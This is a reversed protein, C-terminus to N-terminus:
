RNSNTPIAMTNGRRALMIITFPAYLYLVTTAKSLKCPLIDYGNMQAEVLSVMITCSKWGEASHSHCAVWRSGRPIMNEKDMFKLTIKGELGDNLKTLKVIEM